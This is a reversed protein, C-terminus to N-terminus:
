RILTQFLKITEHSELRQKQVIGGKSGSFGMAM